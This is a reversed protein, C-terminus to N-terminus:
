DLQIIRQWKPVNGICPRISLLFLSGVDTQFCTYESM